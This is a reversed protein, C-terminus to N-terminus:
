KYALEQFLLQVSKGYFLIRGHQLPDEFEIRNFGDRNGIYPHQQIGIAHLIYAFAALDQVRVRKLLLENLAQVMIDQDPCIEPQRSVFTTVIQSVQHAIAGDM